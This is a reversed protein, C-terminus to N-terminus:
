KQKRQCKKQGQGLLLRRLVAQFQRRIQEEAEMMQSDLEEYLAGASITYVIIDFISFLLLFVVFLIGMYQLRRRFLFNKRDMCNVTM